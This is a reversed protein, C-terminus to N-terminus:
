RGGCLLREVRCANGPQVENWTECEFDLAVGDCPQLGRVPLEGQPQLMHWLDSLGPNHGICMAIRVEDPVEHIQDLLYPASALYLADSIQVAARSVIESAQLHELTQRTRLSTSCMVLQPSRNSAELRDAQRSADM